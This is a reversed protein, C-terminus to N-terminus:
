VSARHVTTGVHMFTVQRTVHAWSDTSSSKRALERLASGAAFRCEATESESRAAAYAQWPPAAPALHLVLIYSM